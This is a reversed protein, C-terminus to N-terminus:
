LIFDTTQRDQTAPTQLADGELRALLRRSYTLDYGGNSAVPPLVSWDLDHSGGTTFEQYCWCGQATPLRAALPGRPRTACLYM